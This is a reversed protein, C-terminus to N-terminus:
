KPLATNDENEYDHYQSCKKKKKKFPFFLFLFFLVLINIQHLLDLTFKDKQTRFLWLEANMIHVTGTTYLINM